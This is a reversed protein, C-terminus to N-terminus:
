QTATISPLRTRSVLRSLTTSATSTAPSYAPKFYAEAKPESYGAVVVQRPRNSYMEWFRLVSNGVVDVLLVSYKGILDLITLWSLQTALTVGALLSAILLVTAGSNGCLLLLADGVEQGIIGGTNGPLEVGIRLVHLYFLAASAIIVIVSGLGHLAIITKRRHEIERIYVYYVHRVIVFPILYAVVGFFSFCFDALWAGVVGGANTVTQASSSHTWGADETNYTFLSILFFLAGAFSVLVAVERLSRFTKEEFVAAM